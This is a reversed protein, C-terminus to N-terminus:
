SKREGADTVEPSRIMPDQVLLEVESDEPFDCPSQPIFAGDRYVVRLHRNM